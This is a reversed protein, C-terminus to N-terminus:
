NASARASLASALLSNLAAADVPKVLHQDFGGSQTRRREEEHGWGTLAVVYIHKGWPQSRIRACADYGNLKPMGLDLLVVDPRFTEALM